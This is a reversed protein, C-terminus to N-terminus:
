FGATGIRKASTAGRAPGVMRGPWQGGAGAPGPDRAAVPWMAEKRGEGRGHPRSVHPPRSRSIRDSPQSPQRPLPARQRAFQGIRRHVTAIRRSRHILPHYVWGKGRTTRRAGRFMHPWHARSAHGAGACSGSPASRKHKERPPLTVCSSLSDFLAHIASWSQTQLHFRLIQYSETCYSPIRTLVVFCSIGAKQLLSNTPNLLPRILFIAPDMVVLWCYALYHGVRPVM